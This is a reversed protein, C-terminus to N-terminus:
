PSSQAFWQLVSLGVSPDLYRYLMSGIYCRSQSLSPTVGFDQVTFYGWLGLLAYVRLVRFM